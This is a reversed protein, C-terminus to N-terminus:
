KKELVFFYHYPMIWPSTEKTINFYQNLSNKIKKKSYGKRGMEWHHEGDFKHEKFFLPIRFTHNFVKHMKRNLHPKIFVAMDITSYPISIIVNKKSVRHLEQLSKEFDNFPLHELIECAIIADFQEKDFPMDRIDGIFDPNLDKDIDLSTVNFNQNKLYTNVTKNGIGIELIKEPQLKRTIYIQWFYSMFRDPGGDYSKEYQDVPM